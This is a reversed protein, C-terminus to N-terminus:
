LKFKSTMEKLLNAMESLNEISLTMNDVLENQEVTSSVSDNTKILTEEAIQSTKNVSSTIEQTAASMEESTASVEAIQSTVDQVAKLITKFAVGTEGVLSIGEKVEEGVSNMSHVAQDTDHTIKEVISRINEAALKSRESLKRIETAVIAFGKGEEGARAAEIGANLSLLNTQASIEQILNLINSIETSHSKLTEILSASHAVSNAIAEMQEIAGSVKRNGQESESLTKNSLISVNTSAEAIQGVGASMDEIITVSEKLSTHQTTSGDSIHQMSLAIKDSAVKTQNAKNLLGSTSDALELSSENIHSIVKRLDQVLTNFSQALIGIEDKRETEFTLSLDGADVLEVHKKLKVLPAVLYATFLYIVLISLLIIAVTIIIITIKDSQMKKYVSNVNFDAGVIGLFQGTKSHIPIFTTIVAGYEKTYSFEGLQKKGTDFAQRMLPFDNANEEVQNMASADKSDKPAGDVVYRYENGKDTKERKMTYLYKLGNTEKLINFDERLKYYYDTETNANLLQEYKDVDILKSAEYTIKEAQKSVSDTILKKSMDYSIFGILSGLITVLTAFLLVMKVKISKRM